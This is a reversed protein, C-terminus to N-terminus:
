TEQVTIGTKEIDDGELDIVTDFIKLGSVGPDGTVVEVSRCTLQMSATLIVYEGQPLPDNKQINNIWRNAITGPALGFDINRADMLVQYAIDILEDISENVLKSAEAFQSLATAIQSPTSAPNQLVDLDGEAAKSAMFDINFTQDHQTPGVLSGSSKPFLGSSYYVTIKRLNDLIEDASVNQRQFGVTQYRGAEAAVLISEIADRNLRFQMTM